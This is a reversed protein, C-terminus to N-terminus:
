TSAGQSQNIQLIDSLAVTGLSGLALLTGQAGPAIGTVRAITLTDLEVAEGKATATVSLSYAGDTLKAGAADKGDWEFTRIGPKQAGLDLTRVVVGAADRITVTVADADKALALGYAGKGDNLVLKDGAVVVDHGVLGVAQLYQGAAFSASLAAVTENLKNIGSVTSLQALQTTVQANDLPNLPDQNRLQTVLLTLFRDAAEDTPSASSTASAANAGNAAKPSSAGNTGSSSETKSTPNTGSGTASAGSGTTGSAAKPAIKAFSAVAPTIMTAPTTAPM